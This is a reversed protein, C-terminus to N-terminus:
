KEHYYKLVNFALTRVELDTSELQRIISDLQSESLKSRVDQVFKKLLCPKIGVLTHSTSALYVMLYSNSCKSYFPCNHYLEVAGSEYCPVFNQRM